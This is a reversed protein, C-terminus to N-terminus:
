VESPNHPWFLQRSSSSSKQQKANPFDVEFTNHVTAAKENWLKQVHYSKEFAHEEQRM